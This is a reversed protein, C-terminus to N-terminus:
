VEMEVMKEANLLYEAVKQGRPTLYLRKIRVRGVQEEEEKVLGKEILLRKYKTFAIPSLKSQRLIETSAKGENQYITILIVGGESIIEKM